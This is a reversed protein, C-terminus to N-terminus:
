LDGAYNLIRQLIQERLAAIKIFDMYPVYFEEMKDHTAKAQNLYGIAMQLLGDVVKRHSILVAGYKEALDAALCEDMAIVQNAFELGDQHPETATTILIELEPILLHEMKQPDFACYFAECNYGAEIARTAVKELLRAKGTGPAGTVAYISSALPIITPLYNRFGDPTIASIFLKRLTGAQRLVPRNEFIDASLEAAKLNALGCDFGIQNINEIDDYVSKAAKLFCYARNFLRGVKKNLEIIAEKGRTIGAENWYEGLNIIEDVAGPNKPDVVHPSTGDLLAVKLAPIAVGDLSNNDSSCHFFEVDYGKQNLQMGIERMFTSKGVGPGGKIVMIRRADGAIIHDYYSFFGQSSNGGPFVEKIRGSVKLMEGKLM